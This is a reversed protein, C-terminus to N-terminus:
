LRAWPPRRPASRPDGSSILAVHGGESALRVAESCREAEATMGTSIVKKGEVMREILRIYTTYGVVTDAAQVALIARPTMDQVFGPGIGV